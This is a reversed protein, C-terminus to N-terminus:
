PGMPRATVLWRVLRGTAVFPVLRSWVTPDIRSVPPVPTRDDRGAGYHKRARSLTERAASWVVPFVVGTAFFLGLIRLTLPLCGMFAQVRRSNPPALLFLTNTHITGRM